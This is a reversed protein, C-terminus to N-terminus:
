EGFFYYEMIDRVLPAAVVSGEGADEVMVVVAIEPEERPAYGAFWAHTTPGPLNQATGTKGCVGIAQLPSDVFQFTATGTYATTVDCMGRRVTNLVEDRVDIQSLVEPQAEYSFDDFLGAKQVLYPRLLDGGNAIAATLRVIQLPTVEVEGQGDGDVRGRRVVVAPRNQRSVHRSRRHQGPDEPLDTLGTPQGLGFQRLLRPMLFPDVLNM